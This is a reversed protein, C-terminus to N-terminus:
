LQPAGDQLFGPKAMAEENTLGEIGLSEICSCFEEQDLAGSVGVGDGQPAPPFTWWTWWAMMKQHRAVRTEVPILQYRAFPDNMRGFLNVRILISRYTLKFTQWTPCHKTSPPLKKCGKVGGSSTSVDHFILKRPPLPYFSGARLCLCPGSM